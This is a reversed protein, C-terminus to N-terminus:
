RQYYKGANLVQWNILFLLTLEIGTPFKFLLYNLLFNLSLLRILRFGNWSNDTIWLLLLSVAAPIKQYEHRVPYVERWLESDLHSITVM